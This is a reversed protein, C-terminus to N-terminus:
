NVGTNTNNNVVIRTKIKFESCTGHKTEVTALNKTLNDQIRRDSSQENNRPNHDSEKKKNKIGTWAAWSGGFM